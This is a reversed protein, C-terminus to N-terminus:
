IRRPTGTRARFTRDDFKRVWDRLVLTATIPSIGRVLSVFFLIGFLYGNFFHVPLHRVASFEGLLERALVSCGKTSNAFGIGCCLHQPSLRSEEYSPFLFCSVSFTDQKKTVRVPISGMNCGHFPRTKVAQGVPRTAPIPSSGM